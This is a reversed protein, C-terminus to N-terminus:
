VRRDTRIIEARKETIWGASRAFGIAKFAAVLEKATMERNDRLFQIATAEKTTTSRVTTTKSRVYIVRAGCPWELARHIHYGRDYAESLLRTAEEATTGVPMDIVLVNVENMDPSDTAAILDTNFDMKDRELYIGFGQGTWV